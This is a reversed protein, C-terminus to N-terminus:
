NHNRRIGGMTASAVLFDESQAIIVRTEVEREENLVNILLQQKSLEAFDVAYIIWWDSEASKAEQRAKAESTFWAGRANRVDVFNYLRM